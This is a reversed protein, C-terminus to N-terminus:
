SASGAMQDEMAARAVLRDDFARKETGVIQYDEHGKGAILVVDGRRAARVALAIAKARDVEVDVKPKANTPVGAVIDAVIAQPDETRPNDSTVIVHDAHACAVAAMRPRKTRDRDGGCGFVVRLQGGDPVVPRLATLVNLLADDSHAYDVLVSFGVDNARAAVVPQLRGPPAECSRLAHELTAGDIGQTWAAAAAELANIANHRGVLPLPITFTGWPGRFTVRMATLGVDEISALCDARPDTLSCALRNSRGVDMRKSWPDDVNLIRWADDDLSEFLIAKAAAYADMTKHYDLHDGTLNTFSACDFRVGAVRGQHLAHSSVEMSAHTCGNAVMRGFLAALEFAGPTTLNSPTRGAGDDIEVTGILGSKAKTRPASAALLQQTLYAITTKGNTGTVGLVRLERTPDGHFRHAITAATRAPDATTAAVIGRVGDPLELAADGLIAVAGRGIADAVFARGDKATGARAVFLGGATVRRSDDTISRIDLDRWATGATPAVAIPLDAFLTSLLM